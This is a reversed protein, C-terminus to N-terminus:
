GPLQYWKPPLGSARPSFYGLRKLASCSPSPSFRVHGSKSCQSHHHQNPKRRADLGLRHGDAALDQPGLPEGTGPHLYPPLPAPLDPLINYWEQPMESESLDIKYSEM